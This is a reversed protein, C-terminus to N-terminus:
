REVDHNPFGAKGGHNLRGQASAAIYRKKSSSMEVKCLTDGVFASTESRQSVGTEGCAHPNGRFKRSIM